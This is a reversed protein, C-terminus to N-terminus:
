AIQLHRYAERYVDRGYEDTAKSWEKLRVALDDPDKIQSQHAMIAKLKLEFVDSIDVWLNVETPAALFVHPVTHPALGQQLLEPHYMRNGTAPFLAGVAIEGAARHDPHNIRTGRFYTTPDTTIVADPNFNRIERVVKQRIALTPTLEGDNEDFFTIHKVGLVNAAQRQEQQRLRALEPPTITPNDSGKNGSTLLLYAIETGQKAWLATLGGCFFEPDDPHAVIVMAKQPIFFTM